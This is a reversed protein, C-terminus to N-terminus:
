GFGPGDGGNTLTEINAHLDNVLPLFIFLDKFVAVHINNRLNM